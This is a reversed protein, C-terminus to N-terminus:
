TDYQILVLEYKIIAAVVELLLGRRLSFFGMGSLAVFDHTLQYQLRKIEINYASSPCSSLFNLARKSHIHVDAAALVVSCARVILWSLSLLHYAHSITSGNGRCDQKVYLPKESVVGHKYGQASIQELLNLKHYCSTLGMSILIIILDQFNWLATALKGLLFIPIGIWLNYDSPRLVFSHSRLVYRKFYEGPPINFDTASMMSLMHEIFAGSAVLSTVFIVRRKVAVDSPLTLGSPNETHLWSLSLSQWAHVFKSSLLLSMLANGYFISGSLRTSVMSGSFKMYTTRGTVIRVLKWIAWAEMTVLMIFLIFSWSFAITFGYSTIGFFRAIKFISDLTPIFDKTDKQTVPLWRERRRRASAM